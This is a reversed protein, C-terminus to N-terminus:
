IVQPLEQPRFLMKAVRTHICEDRLAANFLWLM